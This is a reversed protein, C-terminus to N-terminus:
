NYLVCRFMKLRNIIRNSKIQKSFPDKWSIKYFTGLKNKHVNVATRSKIIRVAKIFIIENDDDYQVLIVDCFIPIQRNISKHSSFTLM